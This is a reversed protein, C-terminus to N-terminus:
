GKDLLEGLKEMGPQSGVIRMIEAKGAQLQEDTINLMKNEKERKIDKKESM